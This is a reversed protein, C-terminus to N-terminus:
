EVLNIDGMDYAWLTRDVKNMFLLRDSNKNLSPKMVDVERGTQGFTDVLSTLENSSLDVTWLEDRTQLQGLYWTDPMGATQDKTDYACVTVTADEDLGACKEPLLKIFIKSVSDTLLNTVFTQYEGDKQISFLSFNKNSIASLGYGSVATREVKGNTIKYLFGQLRASAKPYVFHTADATSGWKVVSERFPLDFLTRTSNSSLNYAKGVTGGAVQTSYLLEKDDSISFSNAAVDLDYSNLANTETPLEIIHLASSLGDGSRIVAFYGDASLVAERTNPITINSIREETGSTLDISYIHGTGAEAFYVLPNSSTAVEIEIHGVVPRTTLQRLQELGSVDVLPEGDLPPQLGEFSVTTDTTDGLNFLSFVDTNAASNNFFLLYIWIGSLIVIIAVGIGLIIKKM